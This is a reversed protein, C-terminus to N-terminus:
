AGENFVHTGQQPKVNLTLPESNGPYVDIPRCPLTTTFGGDDGSLFRAVDLVTQVQNSYPVKTGGTIEDVIAMAKRLTAERNM